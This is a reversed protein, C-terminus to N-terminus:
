PAPACEMPYRLPFQERLRDLTRMIELTEDLPMAASEIDGAHLCRMAEAAQYHYGKGAFPLELQLDSQGDVSVSLESPSFLPPHVLIRGRSGLLTVDPSRRIRLSVYLSAIAGSAHGLIIADQEDVGHSGVVGIGKVTTPPGLLMSAYSVLYVGADLLVGGGLAPDFLYFGPDYEPIFGGGALLLQPTGIVEDTLLRRLRTVAPLFRTWMAEMLFLKRARAEAIVREAQAANITFPKECLVAKGAQLAMLMNGAHQAHPTAVYVIDVDPDAVLTEYSGYRRPVGFAEGFREAGDRTRSGVAQLAADPLKTLDAAFARAIRGTGLIGWHTRAM